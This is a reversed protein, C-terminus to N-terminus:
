GAGRRGKSGGLLGRHSMAALEHEGGGREGDRGGQGEGRLGGVGRLDAKDVDARDAVGAPGVLVVLAALLELLRESAPDLRAVDLVDGLAGVGLAHDALEGGAAALDHEGGAEAVHVVDLADGALEGVDGEQVGGAVLRRLVERGVIRAEVLAAVEVAHDGALHGLRVHEAVDAGERDGLHQLADVREGQPRAAHVRVDLHPHDPGVAPVVRALFALRRHRQDRLAGVHEGM